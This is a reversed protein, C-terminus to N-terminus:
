ESQILRVMEIMGNLIESGSEVIQEPPVIFGREDQFTPRLEISYSHIVGLSAYTWDTADGTTPYIVISAPGYTFTKGNVSAIAESVRKMLPEQIDLYHPSYQRTHGWPSMFLQGFSHIDLFVKVEKKRSLLYRGLAYTEPESFPHRGHYLMNCPDSSTGFGGWQHNFNRNLDVGMCGGRGPSRNKRWFRETTFSYQYGDVNLVPLIIWTYNARLSTMNNSLLQRVLFMCTAPSLWERAHLGCNLFILPRTNSENEFIEIAYIRRFEYSTGILVLKARNTTYVLNRLEGLIEPYSHYEADFNKFTTKVASPSYEKQILRQLDNILVRYTMNNYQLVNSLEPLYNPSVHIDVPQRLTTPYSWFDLELAASASSLQQLFTLSHNSTPIIRVLKHGDYTVKQAGNTIQIIFLLSFITILREM